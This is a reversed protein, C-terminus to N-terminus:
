VDEEEVDDDEFRDGTIALFSGALSIDQREVRTADPFLRLLRPMDTHPATTSIYM